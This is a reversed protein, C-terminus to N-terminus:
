HFRSEASSSKRLHNIRSAVDRQSARLVRVPCTRGIPYDIGEEHQCGIFREHGVTKKVGQGRLWDATEAAIALDNRVDSTETSWIRTPNPDKQGARRLIGVVLKTARTNDPGYASLTALPYAARSRQSTRM